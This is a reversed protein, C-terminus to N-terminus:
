LVKYRSFLLIPIETLSWYCAGHYLGDGGVTSTGVGVGWRVGNSIGTFMSSGCEKGRVGGTIGVVFGVGSSDSTLFLLDHQQTCACPLMGVIHIRRKLM